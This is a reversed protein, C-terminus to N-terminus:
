REIPFATNWLARHHTNQFSGPNTGGAHLWLIKRSCPLDVLNLRLGTPGLLDILRPRDSSM